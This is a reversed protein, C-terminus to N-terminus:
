ADKHSVWQTDKHLSINHHPPQLLIRNNKKSFCFAPPHYTTNPSSRWPFRRPNESRKWLQQTHIKCLRSMGLGLRLIRRMEQWITWLVKLWCKLTFFFIDNLCGNQLSEGFSIYHDRWVLWVCVYGLKSLELKVDLRIHLCAFTTSVNIYIYVCYICVNGLHENWRTYINTSFIQCKGGLWSVNRHRRPSRGKSRMDRARSSGGAAPWVAHRGHSLTARSCVARALLPSGSLMAM